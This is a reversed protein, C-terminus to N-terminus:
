FNSFYCTLDKIVINKQFLMLTVGFTLSGIQNHRGVIDYVTIPLIVTTAWGEQWYEMVNQQWTVFPRLPASQCFPTQCPLAYSTFTQWQIGGHPFLQVWQCEDVSGSCKHLGFLWHSFVSATPPTNWCHCCHCSLYAVSCAAM